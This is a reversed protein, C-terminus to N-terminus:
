VVDLSLYTLKGSFQILPHYMERGLTLWRIDQATKWKQSGIRAKAMYQLNRFFIRNANNFLKLGNYLKTRCKSRKNARVM